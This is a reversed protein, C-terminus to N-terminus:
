AAGRGEEARQGEVRRTAREWDDQWAIVLRILLILCDLALAAAWAVILAGVGYALPALGGPWGELYLSVLGGLLGLFGLARLALSLRSQPRPLGVGSNPDLQYLSYLDM